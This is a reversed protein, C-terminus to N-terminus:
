ARSAGSDPELSLYFAAGDGPASCAWARGGHREAIRKVIALGVGTGEYQPDAHLRQFMGFLKDAYQMDFGIGNDKVCLARQAADWSVEVRPDAVKASYKLANGVLNFLAQRALTADAELRPLAGVEVRAGPYAQALEAAVDHAMARLDTPRRELESRNIRALALLDDILQGMRRANREVVDLM